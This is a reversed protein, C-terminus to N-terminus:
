ILAGSAAKQADHLHQPSLMPYKQQVVFINLNGLLDIIRSFNHIYLQRQKMMREMMIMLIMEMMKVLQIHFYIALKQGSVSTETSSSTILTLCSMSTLCLQSFHSVYSPVNLWVSFVAPLLNVRPSSYMFMLANGFPFSDPLCSNM